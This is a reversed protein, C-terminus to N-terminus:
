ITALGTEGGAKLRRLALSGAFHPVLLVDRPFGAKLKMEGVVSYNHDPSDRGSGSLQFGVQFRLVGGVHRLLQM